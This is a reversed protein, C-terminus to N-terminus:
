HNTTMAESIGLKQGKFMVKVFTVKFVFCHTITFAGM